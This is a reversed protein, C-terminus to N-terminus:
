FSMGITGFFQRPAVPFFNYTANPAAIALSSEARKNTINTVNLSVNVGRGAAGDGLPIRAGIRGALTFYAPVKAAGDGPVLDDTFTTYRRGLYDGILQVDFIGANASVVTKNLWDPSGPVKKGATPVTTTGTVYNDDYRSNNYSLANYVSFHSGFHLTGAADFGDTTVSGVNQLITAGSAIATITVTPSIALLRNSFDVHYYSIQGEFATIPGLALAHHTRLGGEYTWSTEPKTNAKFFDFLTQSGLAFPSLGAAASTQFQRVNNQANAFLQEHDTADWVAGIEPLFPKTTDLKGVPLGLSGTFSGPIPQVPVAQSAMQFTSKFGALLTLRPVIKWSDQLHTQIEDVRVESGYQTILPTEYDHPRTYPSSPNSLSVAYWRRFSSSSQHEYWGGLEIQHNGFEAKVTSVLGERDIRYETTRAALGSGGFIGSLRAVNAASTTNVGPGQPGPYYYSFLLPLGAATIPGAVVGVGDDHHFYLQNSWSIHDSAKWDYKLYGLYDTRQADSYFNQYNSGPAANIAAYAPSQYYGVVGAFDPYYFPRTYPATARNDIAATTATAPRVVIATSDENPETKDSYALYVTLKGHPDDRVIKGDAQYGGQRGNFDWARADQRVGSVYFRTGDGLDGSDIRAYTRFTSYSGFTQSVTAGRQDRPDSSFTDITGGLNSTSATGLDGAGSALTVRGVDESIIARQPSLGNYNGYQQDGLPLGDLTYGLQQQNFGHIFLSINQENNGWPDATLFTVGPLTELAKLPSIGPLIKQIEVGTIQTVSRTTKGTVVIDQAPDAPTDPGGAPDPDVATATQRTQAAAPAAFTTLAVGLLLTAKRHDTM